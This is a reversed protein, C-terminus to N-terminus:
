LDIQYCRNTTNKVCVTEQQFNKNDKSIERM